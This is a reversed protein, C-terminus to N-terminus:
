DAAAHARSRYVLWQGDPSWDAQTNAYGAHQGPFQVPREAGDPSLVYLQEHEDGPGKWSVVLQKGDPAWSSYGAGAALLTRQPTSPNELDGVILAGAYTRYSVWKGDPSVSYGYSAPGIPRLAVRERGARLTLYVFSSNKFSLIQDGNPMWVPNGWHDAVQEVGEGNQDAVVIASPSYTHWVLHTGDPSWSPMGGAGLDVMEGGAALVKCVRCLNRSEDFPATDFAVWKGDPSWRPSGCDMDEVAVLMKPEGGAVPLVRLADGSRAEDAVLTPMWPFLCSAYVAALWIKPVRM